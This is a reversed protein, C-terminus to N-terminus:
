RRTLGHEPKDSVQKGPKLIVTAQDSYQRGFMENILARTWRPMRNISTWFVSDYTQENLRKSKGGKKEKLKDVGIAIGHPVEEDLAKLAQERVLEAVLARVPTDTVSDEEYYAPGEPLAKFVQDVLDDLGEGKKASVPIVEDFEREGSFSAIVPM